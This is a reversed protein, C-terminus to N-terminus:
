KRVHFYKKEEEDNYFYFRNVIEVLVNKLSENEKILSYFGKTKKSLKIIKGEFVIEKINIQNCFYYKKFIEMFTQECFKTFLESLGCFRKLLKKNYDEDYKRYKSSINRKLIDSLKEKKIEEFNKFNILRKVEYDIQKFRSKTRSDILIKISDNVLNIIFTFFNVQIKRHVNDVDRFSHQNKDKKGELPKRGRKKKLVIPSLGENKPIPIYPIGSSEKSEIAKSSKRSLFYIKNILEKDENGNVLSSDPFSFFNPLNFKIEKSQLLKLPNNNIEKTVSTSPEQDPFPIILQSSELVSMQEDLYPYQM